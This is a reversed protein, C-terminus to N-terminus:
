ARPERTFLASAFERLERVRLAWCAGLFAASTVGLALALQMGQVVKKAGAPDFVGCWRGALFGCVGALAAAAAIRVGSAAM